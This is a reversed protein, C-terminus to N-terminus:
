LRDLLEAATCSLLLRPFLCDARVSWLPSPRTCGSPLTLLGRCLRPFADLVDLLLSLQALGVALEALRRELEELRALDRMRPELRRSGLDARQVLLDRVRGRSGHSGGAVVRDIRRLRGRHRLLRSPATCPM